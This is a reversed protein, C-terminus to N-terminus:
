YEWRHGQAGFPHDAYDDQQENNITTKLQWKQGYQWTGNYEDLFDESTLELWGTAEPLIFGELHKRTKSLWEYIGDEGRLVQSVFVVEVSQVQEISMTALDRKTPKTGTYRVLVEGPYADPIYNAPNEPYPKATIGLGEIQAVIAAEFIEIEM